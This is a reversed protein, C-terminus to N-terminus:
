LKQIVPKGNWAKTELQVNDFDTPETLHSLDVEIMKQEGPFLTLYNDSFFVPLLIENSESDSVKMRTFFATEKGTNKITITQYKPTNKEVKIKLDPAKLM